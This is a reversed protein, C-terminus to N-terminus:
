TPCRGDKTRISQGILLKGTKTDESCKAVQGTDSVCFGHRSQKWEAGAWCPLLLVALLILLAKRM